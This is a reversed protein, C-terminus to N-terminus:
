YSGVVTQFHARRTRPHMAIHHGAFESIAECACAMHGASVVYAPKDVDFHDSNDCGAAEPCRVHRTALTCDGKRTYFQVIQSNSKVNVKAIAQQLGGLREMDALCAPDCLKAMSSRNEADGNKEEQSGGRADEVDDHCSSYTGSDLPNNHVKGITYKAISGELDELVRLSM